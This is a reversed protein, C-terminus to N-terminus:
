LLGSLERRIVEGADELGQSIDIYVLGSIDSPLELPGKYLLVTKGRRRGLAGLFYGLEFIVNQRARRKRDDSADPGCVYDDPTLLVFVIETEGSEEELKEIITRGLNPQEHLITPEPFGLTNQLYNKLALKAVADHGHVIFCRPRRKARRPYLIRNIVSLIEETTAPKQIYGSGYKKFWETVDADRCASIGLLHLKPYKKRLARALALGTARGSRTEPQSLGDGPPMRIDLLVLDLNGKEKTLTSCVGEGTHACLAEFGESELICAWDEALFTDDDAVLVRKPQRRFTKKKPM